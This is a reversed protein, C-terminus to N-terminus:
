APRRRRAPAQRRRADGVTPGEESKVYIWAPHGGREALRYTHRWLTVREGDDKQEDWCAFHGLPPLVTGTYSKGEYPGGHFRVPKLGRAALAAMYEKETAAEDAPPASPPIWAGGPGTSGQM